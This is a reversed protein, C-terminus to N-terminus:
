KIVLNFFDYVELIKTQNAHMADALLRSLDVAVSVSNRDPTIM